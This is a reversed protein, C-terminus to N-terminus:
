SHAHAAGGAVLDAIIRDADALAQSRTWWLRQMPKCVFVKGDFYMKLNRDFYLWQGHESEIRDRMARLGSGVESDAQEVRPLHPTPAPQFAVQVIGARPTHVVTLAHRYQEGRDLYEDLEDRLVEAYIRLDDEKPPGAAAEGIKGDVLHQRVRVFDEVLWQEQRRLGLAHVTLRNVELELAEMRKEHQHLRYEIAPSLLPGFDTWRMASLAALEKQLEVWPRLATDDLDLLPVPVRKLAALTSRGHYELEASSFFQQYRVFESGLYLALARLLDSDKDPGAIGIQRAPVALRKDSFIAFTRAASVVVLPPNCVRLPSSGSRARVYARSPPVSSVSYPPFTFLYSTGKLKGIDLAIADELEPVPVLADRKQPAKKQEERIDRLEIGQSVTWRGETARLARFRTEVRRLLAADRRGGWMCIKWLQPDADGVERQSVFRVASHEVTITWQERRQGEHPPRTAEQNVVLPSYVAIDEEEYNAEHEQRPAYFLVATPLRARGAFLVERLNTLNAVTKVAHTTFFGRRFHPLENQLSAAPMVLAVLGGPRLFEPARWAFAEAVQYGAVPASEAHARMWQRATRHSAKRADAKFWPPNGVVWDFGPAVAPNTPDLEFFDGHLINKNHLNPLLFKEPGSLYETPIQDLLALALSFEAVRCADEDRDMGFVQETLIARLEQPSPPDARRRRKEILLQYCQVLFAGSGCAPDFVRMGEDLPRLDDLEGLVFNVLPIPTYFAGAERDREEVALFQEYIASLLEIPIHSFDYASFDLHLQGNVEDGLMVGAALRVQATTPAEAGRLDLPFISGNLRTDVHGLLERLTDATMTRGLAAGPDFGWARLMADSLVGRQRLYRLYVFRGILAHAIRPTLAGKERLHRGLANLQELLRVDVRRAPDVREGWRAWLTGDDIRPARFAELATAVKDFAITAALVGRQVGEAEAPAYDFGTYLRVGEPTKVLLFPAAGQNWVVHHIQDATRADPADAVYVVPTTARQSRDPQIGLMYIGRFRGQLMTCATATHRFVHAHEIAEHWRPAELFGVADRYGLEDLLTDDDM